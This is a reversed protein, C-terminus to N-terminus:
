SVVELSQLGEMDSVQPVRAKMENTTCLENKFVAVTYKGDCYNITENKKRKWNFHNQM